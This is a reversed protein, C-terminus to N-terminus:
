QEALRKKVFFRKLFPLMARLAKGRHSVKNKEERTLEAMTKGLEPVYFLPDYGFGGTGRPEELIVGECRGEATEVQGDPTVFAITCVFRATRQEMPIGRLLERLKGNNKEDSAPEGAFRASYVGPYGALADVELGSDDALSPLHAFEAAAKAKLLANERFTAGTEEVEPMGSLDAWTLIEVPFDTLLEKLEIVKGKNRTAMMIKFLMM